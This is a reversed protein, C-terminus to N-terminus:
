FTLNFRLVYHWCLSVFVFTDACTHTHLYLTMMSINSIKKPSISQIGELFSAYNPPVDEFIVM